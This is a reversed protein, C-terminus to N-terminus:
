NGAAQCIPLMVAFLRQTRGDWLLFAFMGLFHDLCKEGWRKYAALILETDTQTRYAYDSLESRLELYNYIEGNISLWLSGDQNSM